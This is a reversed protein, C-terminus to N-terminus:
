VFRPRRGPRSPTTLASGGYTEILKEIITRGGDHCWFRLSSGDDLSRTLITPLGESRNWVRAEAM